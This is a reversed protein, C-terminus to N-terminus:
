RMYHSEIAAEVQNLGWTALISVGVGAAVAWGAPTVTSCILATTTLTGLHGAILTNIMGKAGIYVSRWGFGNYYGDIGADVLGGLLAVGWIGPRASKWIQKGLEAAKKGGTGLIGYTGDKIGEVGRFNRVFKSSETWTGTSESVSWTKSTSALSAITGVIDGFSFDNQINPEAPPPPVSSDGADNGDGNFDSRKNNRTITVK